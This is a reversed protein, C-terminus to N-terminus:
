NDEEVIELIDNAILKLTVKDGARISRLSHKTEHFARGIKYRRLVRTNKTFYYEKENLVIKTSDISEVIGTLYRHGRDIGLIFVFAILIIFYKKIM